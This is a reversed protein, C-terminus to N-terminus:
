FPDAPSLLSAQEISRSTKAETSKQSKVEAQKPAEPAPQEMLADTDVVETFASEDISPIAEDDDEGEVYGSENFAKVLIPSDDSANILLKLARSIVTKKAMQDPFEKHVAQQSPSKNWAALIQARNMVEWKVGGNRLKVICYAGKVNEYTVERDFFNKIKHDTIRLEGNIIEADVEDGAVIVQAQVDAVNAFRKAVATTGFYSRQFQLQKGYAIFYGQNKDVTLGQIAMNEIAQAISHKDCAQLVPTGSKDKISLIKLYAAQIANGLAYNPPVVLDNNKVWGDIKAQVYETMEMKQKEIKPDVPQTSQVQNPQQTM